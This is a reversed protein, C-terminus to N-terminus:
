IRGRNGGQARVYQARRIESRCAKCRWDYGDASIRNRNFHGGVPLVDGCRTCRKLREPRALARPIAQSV